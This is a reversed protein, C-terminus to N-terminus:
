LSVEVVTWLRGYRPNEPTRFMGIEQVEVRLQYPASSTTFLDPAQQKRSLILFQNQLIEAVNEKTFASSVRRIAAKIQAKEEDSLKGESDGSVADTIAAVLGIVAGVGTGIAIGAPGGLSGIEAGMGVGGGITDVIGIADGVGISGAGESVRRLNSETRLRKTEGTESVQISISDIRSMAKKSKEGALFREEETKKIKRKREEEQQKAALAQAEERQRAQRAQERQKWTHPDKEKIIEDIKCQSIEDGLEAGLRYWYSAQELDKQVYRGSFYIDGLMRSSELHGQLSAERYWKKAQDIDKSVGRGYFYQNALRYQAEKHGQEAARMFWQAADAEDHQGCVSQFWVGLRYQAEADGVEVQQKVQEVESKESACLTSIHSSTTSTTGCGSLLVVGTVLYLTFTTKVTQM